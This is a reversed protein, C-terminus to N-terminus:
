SRSVTVGAGLALERGDALLAVAGDATVRIASVNGSLSGDASTVLQGIMGEAQTLAMSTLLADLKTNTKVAQEVSSFSALQSMYETSDIPNMPDQNQMQAILLRLFASYDLTQPPSAASAQAGASVASTTSGVQM